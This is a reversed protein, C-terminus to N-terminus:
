IGLRLCRAAGRFLFSRDHRAQFWQATEIRLWTETEQTTERGEAAPTITNSQSLLYAVLEDQTFSIRDDYEFAEVEIFDDSVFIQRDTRAARPPAPYRQAYEHRLWNDMAPEDVSGKFFHDYIALWGRARLVRAAEAFFVEQDFWHVGSAVTLVDFTHSTFPLREAEAVTYVANPASRAPRIMAEIADVGIALEARSALALTSLGTGCAVDLARSVREEGVVGFIRDLARPHHFPRGHHYRRAGEATAFPNQISDSMM